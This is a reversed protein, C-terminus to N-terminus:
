VIVNRLFEETTQLALEVSSRDGLLKLSADHTGDEVAYDTPYCSLRYGLDIAGLVAYPVRVDIAGGTIVLTEVEELVLSAHLGGEIWPSYTRKDLDEGPARTKALSPVLEVLEASLNERTQM